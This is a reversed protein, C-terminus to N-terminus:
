NSRDLPAIVMNPLGEIPIQGTEELTEPDFTRIRSGNRDVGYLVGNTATLTWLPQNLDAVRILEWEDLDVLAVALTGVAPRPAAEAVGVYLRRGDPSVHMSGARVERDDGIELDLTRVVEATEASYEIVLGDVTAFLLNGNVGRAGDILRPAEGEALDIERRDTMVSGAEVSVSYVASTDACGVDVGADNAIMIPSVCGRTEAEGLTREGELDLVAVTHRDNGPSIVQMKVAFLYRGDASLTIKPLTAPLTNLWRDPLPVEGTTEGTEPDIARLLHSDANSYAVYLRSGDPAVAVAADYGVEITRMTRGTGPDVLELRGPESVDPASLVAIFEPPSSISPSPSSSGCSSLGWVAGILLAFTAVRAIM